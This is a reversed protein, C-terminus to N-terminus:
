FRRSVPAACFLKRNAVFSPGGLRDARHASLVRVLIRIAGVAWAVVLFLM